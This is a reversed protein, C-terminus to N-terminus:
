FDFLNTQAAPKPRADPNPANAASADASPSMPTPEPLPPHGKQKWLTRFQTITHPSFGTYHNNAYAYITVGRHRIKFCFDIWRMLQPTRDIVPKDWKVTKGEIWKRDGLWRIYTWNTTIPDFKLEHPAPM